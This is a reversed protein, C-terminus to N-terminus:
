SQLWQGVYITYGDPKSRVVYEVGMIGGAGPKTVIVM